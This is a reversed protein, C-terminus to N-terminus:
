SGLGERPYKVTRVLLYRPKSRTLENNYIGAPFDMRKTFVKKNLEVRKM